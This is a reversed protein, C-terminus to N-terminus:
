IFCPCGTPPSGKQIPNHPTLGSKERYARGATSQECAGPKRTEPWSQAAIVRAFLDPTVEKRYYDGVDQVTLKRPFVDKRRKM